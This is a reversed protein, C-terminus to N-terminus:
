DMTPHAANEIILRTVPGKQRVLRLGAQEQLASFADPGDEEQGEGPNPANPDQRALLPNGTWKVHIDFMGTLGTRDVVREGLVAEQLARAIDGVTVSEGQVGGRVGGSMAHCHPGPWDEQGCATNKARTLKAGGKAVMLTWINAQGEERRLRLHFREELLLQVMSELLMSRNRSTVASAFTKQDALANIDYADRIWWDPGGSLESGMVESRYALLVLQRLTIGTVVFRGGPRFQQLRGILGRSAGLPNVKLSVVEFRPRQDPTQASLFTPIAVAALGIATLGCRATTTLRRGVRNAMITEIRKRLDAGGVGAVVQPPAHVYRKCVGIIGEAYVTPTDCVSLVYEDCAREREEVLKAGIWWVMPHFWLLAEVLMHVAATVNDRRRVHCLEHAYVTQLQAPTLHESLDDPVLLVPRLLGVVGTELVSATTRVPLQDSTKVGILDIPRSVRTLARIRRWARWRLMVIVAVGCAWLLGLAGVHPYTRGPMSTSAQSAIYASLPQEVQVATAYVGASSTPQQMTVSVPLVKTGLAAVVAYPLLFKVSAAFWLTYRTRAERHRLTVTLLAVMAAFLTSQWLHDGLASIM